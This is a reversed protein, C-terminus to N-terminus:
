APSKRAKDLAREIDALIDEASELGISLRVLSDTIGRREREAKPMAAHSMTVPYTLISEVGGLSVALLPLKVGGLFARAVGADELTFSIVAGGGSAQQMHTAHGPHTALGPYFVERVGEMGTLAEAIRQAAAQEAEMRVALTKVGRLLLWADQVGLVAGFANQVFRIRRGVERTRAVAVGALVDSHGNLFKTGSHLVIDFGFDLPRQLYPTMFTGDAISLLEYEQAISAMERLDTIKLLPNSPTEIFLGKTEPRIAQRVRDPDTTDVFTVTLGWRDFLRTLVRYTGGYVDECVLLHDGPEFLMLVSSVAAMGSSFASAAEGGELEALTAELADRTPNGSRTYDYAGTVDPSEQSFTSALYLPVSSAGTHPDRDVGAHIVQTRLDM